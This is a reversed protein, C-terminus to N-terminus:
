KNITKNNVLLSLLVQEELRPTRSSWQELKEREQAGLAFVAAISRSAGLLTHSYV